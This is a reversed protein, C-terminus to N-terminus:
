SRGCRLPRAGGGAGRGAARGRSWGAPTLRCTRTALRYLAALVVRPSLLAPSRRPNGQGVVDLRPREIPLHPTLKTWQHRLRSIEDGPVQDHDPLKEVGIRLLGQLVGAGCPREGPADAHHPLRGAQRRVGSPLPRLRQGLQTRGPPDGPTWVM